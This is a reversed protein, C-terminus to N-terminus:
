VPPRDVDRSLTYAHSLPPPTLPSCPLPSLPRLLHQGLAHLLPLLPQGIIFGMFFGYVSILMGYAGAAICENHRPIRSAADRKPLHVCGHFPRPCRHRPGQLVHALLATSPLVATARSGPAPHCRRAFEKQTQAGYYWGATSDSLGFDESLLLTLMLSTSFYGDSFSLRDM